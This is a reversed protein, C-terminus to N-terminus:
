KEYSSSWYYKASNYSSSSANIVDALASSLQRSIIDQVPSAILNLIKSVFFKILFYLAHSNVAAHDLRCRYLDM